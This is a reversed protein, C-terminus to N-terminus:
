RRTRGHYRGLYYSGVMGGAAAGGLLGYKTVEVARSRFEVVPWGRTRAIKALTRDPNVVVPHGVLELMPLDSSSDSYGYCLRLDYGREAAVKRIAEAKAQGYVWPSTLEGTYRGDNGVEAVTGIGGALGLQDALNSVIEIPSASVIYLDRQAEGHMDLLNKSEPRVKSVLSPVIDDALELMESRAAGRVLGLALQMAQQSKEDSGGTLRFIIGKAAIRFMPAGPLMKARWAAMAWLVISSGQILTRDLDFFAASNPRDAGRDISNTM